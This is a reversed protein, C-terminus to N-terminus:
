RQLYWGRYSRDTYKGHPYLLVGPTGQAKAAVPVGPNGIESPLADVLELTGHPVLLVCNIRMTRTKKNNRIDASGVRTEVKLLAQLDDADVGVTCSNFKYDEALCIYDVADPTTTFTKTKGDRGMLQESGKGPNYITCRVETPLREYSTATSDGALAPATVLYIDYGMNSLVNRLYFTVSHQVATELQDFEIYSNGWLKDYFKNDSTVTRLIQKVTAISDNDNTSSPDKIRSVEKINGKRNTELAFYDTNNINNAVIIYQNFTNLDSINWNSTKLVEGNSCTVKDVQGMIGNTELPKFYQGYEFPRFWVSKRTVYNIYCGTSMASDQLSEDSNFTRSFTAGAVVALRPYTYAMSDRDPVNPLYSFYPEYKKVLQDWAENTPALMLYTSDESNIAGTYTYLENRQAFVSDLYQMKGDVISGPVSQGPLFERYYYHSNYLFSRLSDLDADKSVYEFVSPLYDVQKGLTFLVGNEYLQNKELLKVGNLESGSLVAYKGNMLVISDTRLDSVSFNYLAIHNQVFEKLVTNNKQPVNAAVQAKYDAILAAAQEASFQDNTPAFVTFVQSGDLIPKYNCAELVSAFNSLNKNGNIAKWLTGEHMMATTNGLSDYHDDWTDTCAVFTLTAVALGLVKTYLIKKSIM